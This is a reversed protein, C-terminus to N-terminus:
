PRVGSLAMEARLNASISQCASIQARINHQGERQARVRMGLVSRRTALDEPSGDLYSKSMAIEGEAKRRDESGAGSTRVVAAYRLAYALDVEAQERLLAELEPQSATLADALALLRENVEAVTAPPDDDFRGM